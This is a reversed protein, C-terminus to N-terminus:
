KMKKVIYKQLIYKTLPKLPKQTDLPYDGHSTYFEVSDVNIKIYWVHGIAKMTITDPKAIKKLHNLKQQNIAIIEENIPNKSNCNIAQYAQGDWYMCQPTFLKTIIYGGFTALLLLLLLYVPKSIGRKTQEIDHIDVRNSVAKIDRASVDDIKNVADEKEPNNYNLNGALYPRQSYNILWALLEINKDDTQSTKGKLFNILPKFNDIDVNKISKGYDNGETPVDFFLRLAKEDKKLFREAYVKLCEDRLKAPTPLALNLSLLNSEKKNRYAEFVKERYDEFM